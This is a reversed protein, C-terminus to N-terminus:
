VDYFPKRLLQMMMIDWNVKIGKSTPRHSLQQHSLQCSLHLTLGIQKQRQTTAHM